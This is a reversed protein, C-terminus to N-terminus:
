VNVEVNFFWAHGHVVECKMCLGCILRICDDGQAPFMLM